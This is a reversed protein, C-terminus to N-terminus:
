LRGVTRCECGPNTGPAMVAVSAGLGGARTDATTVRTDMPRPQLRPSTLFPLDTSGGGSRVRNRVRQNSARARVQCGYEKGGRTEKAQSHRAHSGAWRSIGEPNHARAGGWARQDSAM